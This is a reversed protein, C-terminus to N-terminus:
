SLWTSIPLLEPLGFEFLLNNTYFYSAVSSSEFYKNLASMFEFDHLPQFINGILMLAALVIAFYILAGFIGDAVYFASGTRAFTLVRAVCAKVIIIIILLVLFLGATIIGKSINLLLDESVPYDSLWGAFKGSLAEAPAQFVQTSFVMYYSMYLAGVAIAFVLLGWLSSSIGNSFGHRLAIQLMGVIFFDFVVPQIALWGASAYADSLANRLAEIHSLDAITLVTVSLIAAITFGKLALTFGGFLRNVVGAAGNPSMNDERRRLVGRIIKKVLASLGIALILSLVAGGITVVGAISAAMGTKRLINGLLITILGGILFENAWTKCNIFGKVLGTVFGIVSFLILFVM